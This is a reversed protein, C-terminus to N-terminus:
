EYKKSEIVACAIINTVLTLQMTNIVIHKHFLYEFPGIKLNLAKNYKERGKVSLLCLNLPQKCTKIKSREMQIYFLAIMPANSLSVANDNCGLPFNSLAFCQDEQKNKCLSDTLTAGM